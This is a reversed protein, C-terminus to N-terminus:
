VDIYDRLPALPATSSAAHDGDKGRQRQYIPCQALYIDVGDLDSGWHKEGRLHARMMNVFSLFRLSVSDAKELDGSFAKGKDVCAVDVM